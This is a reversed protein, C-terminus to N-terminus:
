IEIVRQMESVEQNESPERVPREIEVEESFNERESSSGVEMNDLYTNVSLSVRSFQHLLLKLAAKLVQKTRILLVWIIIVIHISCCSTGRWLCPCRGRSREELTGSWDVAIGGGTPFCEKWTQLSRLDLKWWPINKNRCTLM